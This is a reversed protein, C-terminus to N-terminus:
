NGAAPNGDKGVVLKQGINGDRSLFAFEPFIPRGLIFFLNQTRKTSKNEIKARYSL